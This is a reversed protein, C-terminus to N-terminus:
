ILKEGALKDILKHFLHVHTIGTSRIKLLEIFERVANAKITHEEFLLDEKIEDSLNFEKSM